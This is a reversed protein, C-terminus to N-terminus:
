SVTQPISSPQIPKSSLFILFLFTNLLHNALSVYELIIKFKNFGSSHISKWTWRLKGGVGKGKNYHLFKNRTMRLLKRTTHM